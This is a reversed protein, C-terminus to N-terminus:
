NNLAGQDIWGLVKQSQDMSYKKWAHASSQPSPYDYIISTPPDETNVLGGNVISNYANNETLDPPTGGTKHCSICNSNTTFIPIIDQSFSVTDPPIPPEPFVIWEYDCANFFLILIGLLVAWLFNKKKM